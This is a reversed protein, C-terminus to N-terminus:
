PKVSNIILCKIDILALREQYPDFSTQPSAFYGLYPVEHETLAKISSAVPNVPDFGDPNRRRESIQEMLDKCVLSGIIVPFIAMSAPRAIGLAAVGGAAYCIFALAGQFGALM